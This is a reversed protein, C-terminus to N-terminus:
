LMALLMLEDYLEWILTEDGKISKDALIENSKFPHGNEIQDSSNYSTVVMGSTITYKNDINHKKSKVSLDIDSRSYDYYWKGNYEKYGVVYKAENVKIKLHSPKGKIFSLYADERNHLNMSFEIKAIAFSESDIYIKGNYLIQECSQKQNFNVIFFTKGDQSIPNGYEFNYLDEMKQFECGPFSYKIIDLRAINNPGGQLKFLIPDANFTNNKRIKKVLIKDNKGSFYSAKEVDLLAENLSITSNDKKVNEKYYTSICSKNSEYNKGIKNFAEAVLISADYRPNTVLPADTAALANFSATTMLTALTFATIKSKM